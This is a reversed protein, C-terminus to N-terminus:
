TNLRKEEEQPSAMKESPRTTDNCM